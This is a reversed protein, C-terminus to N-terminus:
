TINTPDLLKQVAAHAILNAMDQRNMESLRNRDSSVCVRRLIERMRTTRLASVMKVFNPHDRLLQTDFPRIGCLRGRPDLLPEIQM